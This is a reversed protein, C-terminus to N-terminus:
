SRESGEGAAVDRRIGNLFTDVLKADDEERIELGIILKRYWSFGSMLDILLEPSADPRIEGRAIAREFIQMAIRRRSMIYGRVITALEPNYLSEAILAPIIPGGPTPINTAYRRALASLDSRIDGKDPLPASESIRALLESVLALKSPWRRYITQRSVGAREAVGEITLGAYGCAGLLEATARLIADHVIPSRPRGAV